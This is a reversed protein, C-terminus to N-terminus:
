PVIATIDSGTAIGNLQDHWKDVKSRVSQPTSNYTYSTTSLEMQLKYHFNHYWKQPRNM